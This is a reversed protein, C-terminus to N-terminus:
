DDTFIDKLATVQETTLEETTSAASLTFGNGSADATKTITTGDVKVDAGVLFDVIDAPQVATDAKALSAQSASNLAVKFDGTGQGNIDLELVDIGTGQTISQVASDAKALSAKTAASLDITFGNGEADATKELTATNVKVDGQVLYESLDLDRQGLNEFSGAVGTSTDEIWIYENYLNSGTSEGNLILYIVGKEGTAPLEEVIQYSFQTVGGIASAIASDTQAKTYRNSLKTEIKTFIESLNAYSAYNEVAM